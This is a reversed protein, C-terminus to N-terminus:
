QLYFDLLATGQEDSLKVGESAPPMTGKMVAKVLAKYTGDTITARQGATTLMVGGGKQKTTADHCKACSQQAVALGPHAGNVPAKSQQQPPADPQKPSAQPQPLQPRQNLLLQMLYDNRQESKSLRDNLSRIDDNSVYQSGPGVGYAAVYVPYAIVNTYTPYYQPQPSYYNNAYYGQAYSSRIYCQGSVPEACAIGLAVIGIIFGILRM